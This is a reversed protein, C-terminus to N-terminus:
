YSHNRKITNHKCKLVIFWSILSIKCITAILLRAWGTLTTWLARLLCLILSSGYWSGSLSNLCRYLNELGPTLLSTAMRRGNRSPYSSVIPTFGEGRLLNDTWAQINKTSPMELPNPTNTHTWCFGCCVHFNVPKNLLVNSLAYQITYM